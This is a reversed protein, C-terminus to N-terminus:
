LIAELRALFEEASVEEDDPDTPIPLFDWTMDTKLTAYYGDPAAPPNVLIRSIQEYEHKDEESADDDNICIGVIHNNDYDYYIM